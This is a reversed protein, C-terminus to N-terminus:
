TRGRGPRECFLRAKMSSNSPASNGEPFAFEGLVTLALGAGSLDDLARYPTM